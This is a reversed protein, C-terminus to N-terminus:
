KKLKYRSRNEIIIIDQWLANIEAGLLILIGSAYLWIILIFIGGISGYMQSYKSFKDIYIAFLVSFGYLGFSAFLTGPWVNNSKRHKRPVVRYIAYLGALLVLLSLTFRSFDWLVKYMFNNKVLFKLIYSGINNGFVLLVIMGVLLILLVFTYGISIAKKIWFPRTDTASYAKHIGKIVVNVAASSSWVSVIAGVSLLTASRYEVLQMITEEILPMATSPMILELSTMLEGEAITTYSLLTMLMILFPFFALIWYYTMQASRAGIEHGLFRNKLKMGFGYIYKFFRM